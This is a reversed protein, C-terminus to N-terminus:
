APAPRPSSTARSCTSWRRTATRIRPSSCFRRPPPSPTPRASGRRSPRAAAASSCPWSWRRRWPSSSRASWRSCASASRSTDRATRGRDQVGPVLLRHRRGVGAAARRRPLDHPAPRLLRRGASLRARGARQRGARRAAPLEPEPDRRLTSMRGTDCREGAVRRHGAQHGARRRGVRGVAGGVSHPGPHHTVLVVTLHQERNLRAILEIIAAEADHDVGATPEDLLLM